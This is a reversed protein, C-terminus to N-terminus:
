SSVKFNEFLYYNSQAFQASEVSLPHSSNHVPLSNRRWATKASHSGSFSTRKNQTETRRGRSQPRIFYLLQTRKNVTNGWGKISPVQNYVGSPTFWGVILRNVLATYERIITTVQHMFFCLRGPDHITLVVPTLRSHAGARGSGLYRRARKGGRLQRWRLFSLRRESRDWVLIARIPSGLISKM